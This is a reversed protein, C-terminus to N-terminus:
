RTPEALVTDLLATLTAERLEGLIRAAVRGESDLLVTVPVASAPVYDNLSLVARGDSDAISPYRISYREEFARAAAENDRVNVGLFSVGQAAYHRSAEALVPAEARCPACWSGWVNVVVADGRMDETTVPDGDLTAGALVVAPGRDEPAFETVVGGSSASISNSATAAAAPDGTESAELYAKGAAVGLVASFVLVALFHKWTRRYWPRRAGDEGDKASDGEPKSSPEADPPSVDHPM